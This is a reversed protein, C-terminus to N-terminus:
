TMMLPMFFTFTKLDNCVKILPTRPIPFDKRISVILCWTVSIQYSSVITSVLHATPAGVPNAEYLIPPTVTCQM